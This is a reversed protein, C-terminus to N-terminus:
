ASPPMGTGAMGTTPPMPLPASVTLRVKGIAQRDSAQIFGPLVMSYLPRVM